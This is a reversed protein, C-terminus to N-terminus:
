WPNYTDLDDLLDGYVSDSDGFWRILIARTEGENLLEGDAALDVVTLNFENAFDRPYARRVRQTEWDIQECIHNVRRELHEADYAAEERDCIEHAADMVESRIDEETVTAELDRDPDDDLMAGYGLAILTRATPAGEWWFQSDGAVSLYWGTGDIDLSVVGACEPHSHYGELEDIIQEMTRQPVFAVIRLVTNAREDTPDGDGDWEWKNGDITGQLDAWGDPVPSEDRDILDCGTPHGISTFWVHGTGIDGLRTTKTTMM